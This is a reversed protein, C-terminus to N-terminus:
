ELGVVTEGGRPSHGVDTDAEGTQMPTVARAAPDFEVLPVLYERGQRDSAISRIALVELEVREGLNRDIRGGAENWEAEVRKWFWVSWAILRDGFEATWDEESTGNWSKRWEDFGAPIQPRDPGFYEERSRALTNPMAALKEQWREALRAAEKRYEEALYLDISGRITEHGELAVGMEPVTALPAEFWNGALDGTRRGYAKVPCRDVRAFFADQIATRAESDGRALAVFEAVERGAAAPGTLCPSCALEARPLSLTVALSLRIDKALLRQDITWAAVGPATLTAADNTLRLKVPKDGWRGEVEIRSVPLSRGPGAAESGAERIAIGAPVPIRLAQV